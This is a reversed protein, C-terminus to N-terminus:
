AAAKATSFLALYKTGWFDEMLIDLSSLGRSIQISSHLAYGKSLLEKEKGAGAEGRNKLQIVCCTKILLTDTDNRPFVIMCFWAERLEGLRHGM